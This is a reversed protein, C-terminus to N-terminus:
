HSFDWSSEEIGMWWSFSTAFFALQNALSGHFGTQQRPLDVRIGFNEQTKCCITTYQYVSAPPIAM